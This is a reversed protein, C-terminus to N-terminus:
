GVPHLYKEIREFCGDHLGPRISILYGSLELFKKYNDPDCTQQCMSMFRMLAVEDATFSENNTENSM